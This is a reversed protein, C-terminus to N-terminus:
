PHNRQRRLPRQLRRRGSSFTFEGNTGDEDMDSTSAISVSPGPPTTQYTGFPVAAGMQALSLGDLADTTGVNMWNGAVWAGDPGTNDNRYLWSDQYNNFSTGITGGVVDIITGGQALSFADDGTGLINNGFIRNAFDGSNGFASTFAADHQNNVVYVFEDTYTGSLSTMDTISGSGNAYRDITYSSLDVTGARPSGGQTGDILGTIIVEQATLSCTLLFAFFLLIQRM